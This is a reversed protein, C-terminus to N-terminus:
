HTLFLFVALSHCFNHHEAERLCSQVATNGMAEPLRGLALPLKFSGKATASIHKALSGDRLRQTWCRHAVEGEWSNTTHRVLLHPSEM